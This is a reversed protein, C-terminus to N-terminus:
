FWGGWFFVQGMLSLPRQNSQQKAQEQGKRAVASQHWHLATLRRPDLRETRQAGKWIEGPWLTAQLYMTHPSSDSCQFLGSKSVYSKLFYCHLLQLSLGLQCATDVAWGRSDSLGSESSQAVETVQPIHHQGRSATILIIFIAM